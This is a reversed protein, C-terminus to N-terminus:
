LGEKLSAKILELDVDNEFKSEAQFERIALDGAIRASEREDLQQQKMADLQIKQQDIATRAEIDAMQAQALLEEPSPKPPQPPPPEYDLPIPKFFQNSDPYGSIELMKSLTNRVQGLGVLPNNPGLKELAEQQRMATQNLVALREDTTGVGLGVSVSCDMASDWVRPDIPVWEDRLRVIRERDQHTIILRLIGKFMRKFSDAFLRAMLELHQEAGKITATVAVRTTSQLVDPDLGQSAATQGTRSEKMSDLYQIMPFADKGLFPVDLQQVMGPQRMRIVSGVEPNLVDDINVMGEVVGTRPYLAFSLSDLMGRLVASKVRQIDKTLDAIDSGFFVHPEPDCAFMAFPISDAPENNVIEYNNGVTCIRRLEAIGDGDYDIYCWAETYLVRRREAASVPGPMETNSYRATYEDSDVFAFEDSLHDDLIDQDYGLAVLSSVTSMTRHGVVMADDLSTAAADVFFEEPPMTEIKVQNRKRSRKIEVDYIQPSQQGQAEMQQIQEPSIGTAPRGEVSVAEVGEEQLILGLAGEDLGEFTHTQVETSDDWWWKVFGGKNMLADKFVSYFIAIADNDQRVVYNLYDTAQESMAMDDATRPVFEVVKESGFFVRMMSPLVAQVSDRVDRSVVQSRGDVENGFPDGRYYKTSEARIPSIDDDIYQIADSIYSAVVAQLDAESMGVGAETEAEDIYAL